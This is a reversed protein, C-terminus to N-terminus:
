KWALTSKEFNFEVQQAQLARTGLYGDIDGLDQSPGKMLFVIRESETTGILVGPLKARKVHVYGLQVGDREDKLEIHPFRKRLRDEYLLIGEMGTDVLLRAPHGQVSVNVTLSTPCKPTSSGGAGVLVKFIVKHAQYDILLGGSRCLLDLGIIADAHEALQSSKILDAILLSAGQVSVPGFQVEPFEALEVPIYKDFNFVRGAHRQLGFKEAVKRDVVTRSAGTDLIFKLKRFQAIRGEIVILFGGRLEFPLENSQKASTGSLDEAHASGSQLLVGMVAYGNASPRPATVEERVVMSNGSTQGSGFQAFALLLLVTWIRPKM